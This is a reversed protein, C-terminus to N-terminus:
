PPPSPVISILYQYYVVVVLLSVIIKSEDPNINVLGSAFSVVTLIFIIKLIKKM